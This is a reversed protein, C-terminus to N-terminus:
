HRKLHAIIQWSSPKKTFTIKAGKTGRESKPLSDGRGVSSSVPCPGKPRAINLIGDEMEKLKPAVKERKGSGGAMAM